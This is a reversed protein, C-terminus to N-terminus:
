LCTALCFSWLNRIDFTVRNLSLVAWVYLKQKRRKGSQPFSNLNFMLNWASINVGRHSDIWWSNTSHNHVQFWPPTYLTYSKLCNIQLCTVYLYLFHFEVFFWMNWVNSRCESWPKTCCENIVHDCCVLQSLVWTLLIWAHVMHFVNCDVIPHWKHIDTSFGLLAAKYM